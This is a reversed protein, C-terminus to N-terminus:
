YKIENTTEPVLSSATFSYMALINKGSDDVTRGEGTLHVDQLSEITGVTITDQVLGQSSMQALDSSSDYDSDGYKVYITFGELPGQYAPTNTETYASKEEEQSGWFKNINDSAIKNLIEYDFGTGKQKSAGLVDEVTKPSILKNYRGGEETKNPYLSKYQDEKIKQLILQMYFSRKFNMTFSGQIIRSGRAVHRYKYDGYAYIPYVQEQVQYQLNVIDDIFYDNFFISINIGSWYTSHFEDVTIVKPRDPVRM